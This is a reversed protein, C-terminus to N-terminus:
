IKQRLFVPQQLGKGVELGAIDPHYLGPPAMYVAIIGQEGTDLSKGQIKMEDHLLGSPIKSRMEYVKVSGCPDPSFGANKIGTVPVAVRKSFIKIQAIPSLHLIPFEFIKFINNGRGFKRHNYARGFRLLKSPIFTSSLIKLLIKVPQIIVFGLATRGFYMAKKM